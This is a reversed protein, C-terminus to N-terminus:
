AENGASGKVSDLLERVSMQGQALMALYSALFREEYNARSAFIPLVAEFGERLRHRSRWYPFPWLWLIDMKLGKKSIIEIRQEDSMPDKPFAKFPLRSAYLSYFSNPKGREHLLEQHPFFEKLDEQLWDKRTGKFRKLGILRELHERQFVVGDLNRIWCQIVAFLSIVRHQRRAGERLDIQEM